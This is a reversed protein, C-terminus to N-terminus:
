LTYCVRKQIIQKLMEKNHPQKKITHSFFMYTKFPLLYRAPVEKIGLLIDCHDIDNEVEIGQAKYEDDSFCRYSCSQVTIKINPYATLVKHCQEPTLVARRDRPIKEERILGIKIKAPM